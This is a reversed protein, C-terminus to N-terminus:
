LLAIDDRERDEKMDLFIGGYILSGFCCISYIIIAYFENFMSTFIPHIYCVIFSCIWHSFMMWCIGEYRVADPFSMPFIAWPCPGQGLGFFLCYAFTSLVPVWHPTAVVLSMGYVILSLFCGFSSAMWLIGPGVSDMLFCAIFCAIFQAFTSLASQLNADLNIGSSSMMESLNALIANIGSFQQFFLMTMSSIVTRAYKKQYLSEKKVSKDKLRESTPSDSVIYISGALIINIAGGVYILVKWDVFAGLINNLCIGLIIFLQHLSGFLGRAYFPAVEGVYVPALASLAGWFVGQITRVILGAKINANDM